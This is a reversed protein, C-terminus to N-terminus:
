QPQYMEIKLVSAQVSYRDLSMTFYGAMSGATTCIFVYEKVIYHKKWYGSSGSYFRTFTIIISLPMTSSVFVDSFALHGMLIHGHSLSKLRKLIILTM